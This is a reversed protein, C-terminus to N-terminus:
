GPPTEIGSVILIIVKDHTVSAWWLKFHNLIILFTTEQGYVVM